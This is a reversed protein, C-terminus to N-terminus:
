ALRHLSWSNAEINVLRFVGINVNSTNTVTLLQDTASDGASVMKATVIGVGPVITCVNAATMGITNVILDFYTGATVSGIATSIETGTPLTVNGTAGTVGLTGSITGIISATAGTAVATSTPRHVVAKGLSVIPCVTTSTSTGPTLIIDGALGSATDGSSLFVDGTGGVTASGSAVSVYGSDGSTTSNGSLVDIAGSNGLTAVNGTKIQVVGSADSATTGSTVTIAGSADTGTENASQITVAGSDGSTAGGAGSSLTLAGGLGTDGGIGGSITITGATATGSSKGSSVTLAGGATDATTSDAVSVTHAEEKEFSINDGFTKTGNISQTGESMVFSASTGADPVTYTRAAAQSANTITTITNGASDAAKLELQGRLTTPAQLSFSQDINSEWVIADKAYFDASAGPVLFVALNVALADISDSTAPFIALANAGSNKIHVHAGAVAAPLKVAHGAAAVTTINNIEETLPKAAAQTGNTDATLGTENSYNVPAGYTTTANVTLADAAADGLVITGNFTSTGTVTLDGSITADDVTIDGTGDNLDNVRDIVENMKDAGAYGSVKTANRVTNKTIKDIAM